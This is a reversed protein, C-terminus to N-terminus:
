EATPDVGMGVLADIATENGPYIDLVANLYDIAADQDGRDALLQAIGAIV